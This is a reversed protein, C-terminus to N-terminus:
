IIVDGKLTLEKTMAVVESQAQDVDRLRVAGLAEMDEKLILQAQPSLNNMFSDIVSDSAGKLAVAMKHRDVYRLVNQISQADLASIDEFTFMMSRVQEAVDRNREFLATMLRNETKRDLCNFIDAIREHGEKGDSQTLTNMFDDHLTQEIDKLVDRKVTELRLLRMIVDMTFDEPLFSLVEAVYAPKLRSLIVAVTQPYENKLYGALIDANVNELKDWVTRGAPGKMEDLINKQRLSPLVKQLLKETREFGGSLSRPKEFSGSFDELVRQTVVSDVVGLNAMAISIERVENDDLQEFIKKVFSEGIALLFVAIKQHGTLTEYTLSQSM